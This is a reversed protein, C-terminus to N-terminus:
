QRFEEAPLGMGPCANCKLVVARAVCPPQWTARRGFDRNRATLLGTLVPLLNWIRSLSRGSELRGIM